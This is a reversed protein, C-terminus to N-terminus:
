GISVTSSGVLGLFMIRHDVCYPSLLQVIVKWEVDSNLSLLDWGHSICTSRAAHWSINRGQIWHLVHCRSPVATDGEGCAVVQMTELIHPLEFHHRTELEWPVGDVRSYKFILSPPPFGITLKLNTWFTVSHWVASTRYIADSFYFVSPEQFQLIIPWECKHHEIETESFQDIFLTGSAGGAIPLVAILYSITSYFTDHYIPSVLIVLNRPPKIALFGCKDLNYAVKSSRGTLFTNAMANDIGICTVRTVQWAVSVMHSCKNRKNTGLQTTEFSIYAATTQQPGRPLHCTHTGTNQINDALSILVKCFSSKHKLGFELMEVSFLTQYKIMLWRVDTKRDSVLRYIRFCCESKTLKEGAMLLEPCPPTFYGSSGTIHTGTPNLVGLCESTRYTISFIINDVKPYTRVAILIGKGVDWGGQETITQLMAVGEPTCFAAKLQMKVLHVGHLIMKTSSQLLYLGSIDCNEAAGAFSMDDVKIYINIGTQYNPTSFSFLHVIPRHTPIFDITGGAENLVDTNVSFCSKGPCELLVHHFFLLITVNNILTNLWAVTLDGLSSTINIHAMNVCSLSHLIMYHSAFGGPTVIGYSPGDFIKLNDNERNRCDQQPIYINVARLDFFGGVFQKAKFSWIRVVEQILIYQRGPLVTHTLITDLYMLPFIRADTVDASHLSCTLTRKYDPAMRIHLIQLINYWMDHISEASECIRQGSDGTMSGFNQNGRSRDQCSSEDKFLPSYGECTRQFFVQNGGIDYGTTAKMSKLCKELLFPSIVNIIQDLSDSSCIVHDTPVYVVIQLGTSMNGNPREYAFDGYWEILSGLSIRSGHWWHQIAFQMHLKTGITRAGWTRDSFYFSRLFRSSVLMGTTTNLQGKVQYELLLSFLNSGNSSETHRSYTHIEVTKNPTFLTEQLPNGCLTTLTTDQSKLVIDNFGCGIYEAHDFNEKLSLFSVNFHLKHPATIKYIARSTNSTRLSTGRITLKGCITRSEPVSSQFGADTHTQIPCIVAIGKQLRMFSLHLYMALSRGPLSDVTIARGQIERLHSVWPKLTGNTQLWLLSIFFLLPIGYTDAM